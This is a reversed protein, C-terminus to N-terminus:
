IYIDLCISCAVHHSVLHVIISFFPAVSPIFYLVASIATNGCQATVMMKKRKVWAKSSLLLFTVLSTYKCQRHIEATVQALFWGSASTLSLFLLEWFHLILCQYLPLEPTRLRSPCELKMEWAPSFNHSCLFPSSAACWFVVKWYSVLVSYNSIATNNLLDPIPHLGFSTENSPLVRKRLCASTIPWILNPVM